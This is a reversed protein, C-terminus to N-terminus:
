PALLLQPAASLANMSKKGGSLEAQKAELARILANKIEPQTSSAIEAYRNNTAIDHARGAKQYGYRGVGLGLLAGGVAGMPGGAYSSALEGMVPLMLANGVDRSSEVPSKVERPRTEEQAAQARATISQKTLNANVEAKRKEQGLREILKDGEKEGFLKKIKAEVFPADPIERGARAENRSFGIYNDIITRAGLRASALEHDSLKDVWKGFFEPRNAMGAEGARQTNLIGAGGHFADEVHMADRYESLAQKYPGPKAANGGAAADIADVLKGRVDKLAGGILKDDAGTSRLRTDAEARIRSQVGHVGADIAPGTADAFYQDRVPLHEDKGRYTLEQRLQLLRKQVPSLEIPQPTGERAARLQAPTFQADIHKIANTVDVPKAADLAPQIRAEGVMQANKKLTDLLEMVNPTKGMGTNYAEAILSPSEEAREGARKFLTEQGKSPGGKAIGIATTEVSPSVDMATLTPNKRLANIAKDVAPLGGESIHEVVKNLANVTPMSKAAVKVGVSGPVMLATKEGFDPNGTIKTAETKLLNLPGALLTGATSVILGMGVDGVGSASQGSKLEEVGKGIQHVGGTFSEAIANWARGARESLGSGVDSAAAKVRGAATEEAQPKLHDALEKEYEAATAVKKGLWPVYIGGEPAQAAAAKTGPLTLGLQGFPTDHRTSASPQQGPLTLGLESFPDAM